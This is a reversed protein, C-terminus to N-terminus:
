QMIINIRTAAIIIQTLRKSQYEIKKKRERKTKIVEIKKTKQIIM